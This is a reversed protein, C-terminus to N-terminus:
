QSRKKAERRAKLQTKKREIEELRKKYYEETRRQIEKAADFEAFRARAHMFTRHNLYLVSIHLNVSERPEANDRGLDIEQAMAFILKCEECPEDMKFTIYPMVSEQVGM